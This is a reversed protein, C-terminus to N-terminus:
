RRLRAEYESKLLGYDVIDLFEDRKRVHQRRCGEYVMGLREMLRQVAVNRKFMVAFIKNLNLKEFGYALVAECAERAIGKGHYERDIWIGLEAHRHPWDLKLCVSGTLTESEKLARAFDIREGSQFKEKNRRIWREAFGGEYPYPFLLNNDAIAKQSLIQALRPADSLGFPRLWLRETEVHPEQKPMMSPNEAM